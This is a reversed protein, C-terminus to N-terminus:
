KNRIYCADYFTAGWQPQYVVPLDIMMGSLLAESWSMLLFYPLYNSTLYEPAYAGALSLLLTASMGTSAM